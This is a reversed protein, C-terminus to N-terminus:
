TQNRTSKRVTLEKACVVNTKFLKACVLHDLAGVFFCLFIGSIHFMNFKANKCLFFCFYQAIDSIKQLIANSCSKM